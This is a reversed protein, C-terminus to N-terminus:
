SSNHQWKPGHSLGASLPIKSIPAVLAVYRTDSTVQLYKLTVGGVMRLLVSVDAESDPVQVEASMGLIKSILHRFFDSLFRHLPFLVLPQFSPVIQLLLRDILVLTYPAQPPTTFSLNEM